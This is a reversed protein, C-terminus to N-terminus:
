AAEKAAFLINQVLKGVILYKVPTFALKDKIEGDKTFLSLVFFVTHTGFVKGGTKDVFSAFFRRYYCSYRLIFLTLNMHHNHHYGSGYPFPYTKIVHHCVTPEGTRFDMPPTNLSAWRLVISSETVSLIQPIMMSITLIIVSIKVM